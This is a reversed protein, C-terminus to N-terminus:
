DAVLFRFNINKNSTATLQYIGTSLQPLFIEYNEYGNNIIKLQNTRGRMDTLILNNAELTSLNIISISQTTPHYIFSIDDALENVNMLSSVNYFVELECHYYDYINVVYTSAVLDYISDGYAGNSWEFVYPASGGSVELEISGDYGFVEDNINASVQMADPEIISFDFTPQGCLNDAGDIQLNYTGGQLGELQLPNGQELGTTNDINNHTLSYSVWATDLNIVVSGDADGNCKLDTTEIEINKGIHLLFRPISTTDSMLFDYSAGELVPYSEGTFTDEIYMCPVTIESVSFFEISHIGQSLAKTRLPISWEAFGKNFSHVALDIEDTNLASIQPGSPYTNWYKEADYEYDFEEHAHEIDRIVVEDFSNGDSVRIVMGPSLNSAKIFAQDTASKVAETAILSPSTDFARVWFSQQSAIFPAGGNTSAGNVYTAYQQTDPDQIYIAAGVKTKTWATSQWDVTSAYPNAVLCWGDQGDTGNTYSVPLSVPGQNPVGKLDFIFENTGQLSDGSYIQWGQGAGMIQSASTAPLFGQFNDLTEDFSYISIFNFNPFLSGAYGATAFDDNFQEITAGEVASGIYRWWTAGPDIYREMSIDGSIPPSFACNAVGGFALGATPNTGDAFIVNNNEDLLEYSNENEWNGTTYFLEYLSGAPVTFDSSSGFGTAAFSESLVGDIFLDLSGGNWGDGYTDLMNLSFSCESTLEAIRATGNVDSRLRLIDNTNLTSKTIELTGTLVIEDGSLSLGGSSEVTLDNLEFQGANAIQCSGNGIFKIAGEQNQINGLNNLVTYILLEGGASMDITGENVLGLCEVTSSILPNFPTGAPINAMMYNNPVGASWNLGNNWDQSITGEWNTTQDFTLRIQPKTTLIVAALDACISGAADDRTYRYGNLSNFVRCQGSSNWTPMVQSWCIQVLINDTGNWSFNNDLDIMDWDGATPTYNYGNKVTQIGTDDVNLLVDTLATHKMKITYGPIEYIPANEVFFGIQSLDGAGNFGAANIEAATYVFQSIQRRYYINVPSAEFISNVDPGAGITVSQGSATNLLFLLILSLLNKM